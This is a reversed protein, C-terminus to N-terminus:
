VAGRRDISELVDALMDCLFYSWDTEKSRLPKGNDPEDGDVLNSPWSYGADVHAVAYRLLAVVGAITCPKTHLLALAVHDDIDAFDDPLDQGDFQKLRDNFAAVADRHLQIVAYVPDPALDPFIM